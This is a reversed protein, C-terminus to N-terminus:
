PTEDVERRWINLLPVKGKMECIGCPDKDGLLRVRSSVLGTGDCSCCTLVPVFTAFLMLGLLVVVGVFLLPIFVSRSPQDPM